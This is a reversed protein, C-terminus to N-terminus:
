KDGHTHIEPAAIVDFFGRDSRQLTLQFPSDKPVTVASTLHLTKTQATRATVPRARFLANIGGNERLWTVLQDPLIQRNAAERMTAIYRWAAARNIEPEFVCRGIVLYIDGGQEFYARKGSAREAALHAAVMQDVFGNLAARQCILMCDALVKYLDIDRRRQSVFFAARSKLDSIQLEIDAPMRPTTALNDGAHNEAM